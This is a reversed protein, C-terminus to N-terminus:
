PLAALAALLAKVYGVSYSWAMRRDKTDSALLPMHDPNLAGDFGVNNLARIIEFMNMDGDDLLVEEFGGSSALNGRVNRFHVEFIKGKRGYNNIEDLVLQTGGAEHRTGVCYLLGNNESPSLDLVRHYGLSSFPAEQVPPDSPHLALKVGSEEAVPVINRYVEKCRTWFEDPEIRHTPSAEALQKKRLELDFGRMTYGGRHEATHTTFIPPTETTFIPRGIPIRAEGLCKITKCNNEIEEEGGPQGLMSKQTSPLTVRNIRLGWSRVRRELKLLKEMDPYGQERIGPIRPDDICDVGIQTARRLLEDTLEGRAFIAVKM